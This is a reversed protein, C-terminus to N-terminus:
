KLVDWNMLLDAKVRPTVLVQKSGVPREVVKHAATGPYPCQVLSQLVLNQLGTNVEAKIVANLLQRLSPNYSLSRAGSVHDGNAIYKLRVSCVTAKRNHIVAQGGLAIPVQQYRSAPGRKCRAYEPVKV